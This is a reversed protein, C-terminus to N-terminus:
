KVKVVSDCSVIRTITFRKIRCESGSIKEIEWDSHGIYSVKDGKSLLNGQKDYVIMYVARSEFESNM